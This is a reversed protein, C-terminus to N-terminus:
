AVTSASEASGTAPNNVFRLWIPGFPEPQDLEIKGSKMLELIALFYGILRTKLYPPEFIDQFAVRDAAAVRDMIRAEYVYQPTDDVQITTPALSQTERLLRAFAAVLDWLEVPRIAKPSKSDSEDDAMRTVRTSQRDASDELAKAADKFKRYELLQKVLENKAPSVDEDAHQPDVPVLRRSKMEMLSAATVLFDGAWEVDFSQMAQIAILFEDAIQALSVDRIDVENKRVLYLLLDLPGHFAAQSIRYGTPSRRDTIPM